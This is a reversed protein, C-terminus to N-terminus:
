YGEKNEVVNVAGGFTTLKWSAALVTDRVEPSEGMLPHLLAWFEKLLQEPIYVGDRKGDSINVSQYQM